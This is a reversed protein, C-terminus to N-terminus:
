TAGVACRCPAQRPRKQAMGDGAAGREPSGVSSAKTNAWLAGLMASKRSCPNERRPAAAARRRARRTSRSRAIRPQPQRAIAPSDLVRRGDSAAAAWPRRRRDVRHDARQRVVLPQRVEAHRCRPRAGPPATRGADRRRLASQAPLRLFGAPPKRQKEVIERCEEAAAAQPELIEEHLRGLAAPARALASSAASPPWRGRGRSRGSRTPPARSSRAPSRSRRIAPRSSGAPSASRAPRRRRREVVSAPALRRAGRRRGTEPCLEQKAAARWARAPRKM